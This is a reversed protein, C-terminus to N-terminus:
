HQAVWEIHRKEEKAEDGGGAVLQMQLDTDPIRVIHVKRGTIGSYIGLYVVERHPAPLTPQNTNTNLQHTSTAWEVTTNDRYRM